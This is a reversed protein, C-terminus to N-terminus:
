DYHRIDMYEKIKVTPIIPMKGIEASAKWDM